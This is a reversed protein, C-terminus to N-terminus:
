VQQGLELVTKGTQPLRAPIIGKGIAKPKLCNKCTVQERDSTMELTRNHQEKKVGCRTYSADGVVLETFHVKSQSTM